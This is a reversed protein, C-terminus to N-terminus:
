PERGARRTSAHDNQPQASAGAGSRASHPPITVDTDPAPHSISAKARPKKKSRAIHATSPETRVKPEAVVNAILDPSVDLGHEACLEAIRRFTTPPRRARLAILSPRLTRLKATKSDAYGRTDKPAKAESELAEKLADLGTNKTDTM